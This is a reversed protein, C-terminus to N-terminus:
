FQPHLQVDAMAIRVLHRDDRATTVNRPGTGTRTQTRGVEKWQNWLQRLLMGQVLLLTVTHCVQEGSM